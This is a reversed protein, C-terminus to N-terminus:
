SPSPKQAITLIEKTTHDHFEAGDISCQRIVKFGNKNLMHQLEQATYIQLSFKGSLTQPLASKKSILFQDFSILRGNKKDLKSHQINRITTTGVIKQNDMSLSEVVKENMSKLNFIDFIYLGGPNLNKHINQMAKEFDNKTLHGIANFISIVADINGVHLTRIDGRILKIVLNEKAAKSKAIKLLNSSIDSGTVKYGNKALWISQAGTGCTLDLVTKIGYQKFIQDLLNNITSTNGGCLADYYQSLKSYELPLNM